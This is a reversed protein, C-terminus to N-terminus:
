ASGGATAERCAHGDNLKHRAGKEPIPGEHRRLLDDRKVRVDERKRDLQNPGPMHEDFVRKAVEVLAPHAVWTGDHGARVERLKDARVKDLAAANAAEDNKIPIQAAMDGM